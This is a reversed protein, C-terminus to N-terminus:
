ASLGAPRPSLENCRVFPWGVRWAPRHVTPGPLSVATGTFDLGPFKRQFDAPCSCPTADDPAAVAVFCLYQCCSPCVTPSPLDFKQGCNSCLGTTSALSDVVVMMAAIMDLTKRPVSPRHDPIRNAM